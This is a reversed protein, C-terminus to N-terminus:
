VSYYIGMGSWDWRKREGLYSPVLPYAGPQETYDISLGWTTTDDWWAFGIWASRYVSPTYPNLWKRQYTLYM